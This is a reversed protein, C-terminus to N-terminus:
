FRWSYSFQIDFEDTTLLIIQSPDLQNRAELSEEEAYMISFGLKRGNCLKRSFGATYHTETLSILLINFTNENAPVPQDGISLGARM